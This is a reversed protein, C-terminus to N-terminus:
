HKSNKFFYWETFFTFIKYNNFQIGPLFKSASFETSNFRFSPLKFYAKGNLEEYLINNIEGSLKSAKVFLSQNTMVKECQKSLCLSNKYIAKLTGAHADVPYKWDSLYSSLPLAKSLEDTNIELLLEGNLKPRYLNSNLNLILTEDSNKLVGFIKFASNFDVALQGTLASTLKQQKYNYTLGNLTVDSFAKFPRSKQFKLDTFKIEEASVKQESFQIDKLKATLSDTKFSFPMDMSPLSLELAKDANIHILGASYKRYSFNNLDLLCAVTAKSLSTLKNNCKFSLNGALDLEPDEFFYEVYENLHSLNADLSVPFEDKINKPFKTKFTFLNSSKYIASLM